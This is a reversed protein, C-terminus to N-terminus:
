VMGTSPRAQRGLWRGLRVKDTFGFSLQNEVANVASIKAFQRVADPHRSM